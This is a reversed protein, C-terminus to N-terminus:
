SDDSSDDTQGSRKWRKWWPLKPPSGAMLVARQGREGPNLGLEFARAIERAQNLNSASRIAVAALRSENERDFDRANRYRDGAREIREAVDDITEINM